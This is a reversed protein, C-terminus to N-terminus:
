FRKMQKYYKDDDPPQAFDPIFSHSTDAPKSEFGNVAASPAPEIADVPGFAPLDPASFTRMPAAAPTDLDALYPNPAQKLDALAAADLGPVAADSPASAPGLELSQLPDSRSKAVEGALGDGKSAPLLLDHDKASVWSSMFSDLPNYAPPAAEASASKARTDEAPLGDKGLRSGDRTQDPDGKLIDDKEKGRAAASHDGKKDLAEKDMADVLWNGTGEKKKKLGDPGLEGDPNALIAGLDPSQVSPGVSIDKMDLSPMVPTAENQAQPARIAALDAKAAAISDAPAPAPDAARACAALFLFLAPRPARM